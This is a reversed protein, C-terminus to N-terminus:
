KASNCFDSGIQEGCDTVEYKDLGLNRLHMQLTRRSVGLERATLKINWGYTDLAAILFRRRFEQIAEHWGRPYNTDQVRVTRNLDSPRRRPRPLRMREGQVGQTLPQIGMVAAAMADFSTDM